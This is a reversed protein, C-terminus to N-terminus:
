MIIIIYVRAYVAVSVVNSSKKEGRICAYITTTTEQVSKREKENSRFFSAITSPGRVRARCVMYIYTRYTCTCGPFKVDDKLLRGM